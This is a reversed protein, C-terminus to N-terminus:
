GVAGQQGLPRALRHFDHQRALLFKEQAFRTRGPHHMQFSTDCAVTQEDGALCAHIEVGTKGTMRTTGFDGWSDDAPGVIDGVDAELSGADIGILHPTPRETAWAPDLSVEGSFGLDVDDAALEAHIREVKSPAITHPLASGRASADAQSM